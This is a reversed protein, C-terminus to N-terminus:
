GSALRLREVVSARIFCWLRVIWQAKSSSLSEKCMSGSLGIVWGSHWVVPLGCPFGHLLARPACCARTLGTLIFLLCLINASFPHYLHPYYLDSLPLSLLLCSLPNHCCESGESIVLFPCRLDQQRM